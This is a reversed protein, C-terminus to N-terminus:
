VRDITKGKDNLIFFNGDVIYTKSNCDKSYLTIATVNDYKWLNEKLFHLIVSEGSNNYVYDNIVTYLRDNDEISPPDEIKMDKTLYNLPVVYYTIRDAQEYTIKGNEGCQQLIM